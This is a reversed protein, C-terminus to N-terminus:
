CINNRIYRFAQIHLLNCTSLTIHNVCQGSIFFVLEVYILSGRM